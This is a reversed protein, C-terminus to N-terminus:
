RECVGVEIGSWVRADLRFYGQARDKEAWEDVTQSERTENWNSSLGM